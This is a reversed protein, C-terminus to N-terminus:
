ATATERRLAEVAPECTQDAPTREIWLDRWVFDDGFREETKEQLILWGDKGDWIVRRRPTTSLTVHWSGFSDRSYNAELIPFGNVSLLQQLRQFDSQNM